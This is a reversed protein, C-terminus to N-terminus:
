KSAYRALNEILDRAKLRGSILRQIVRFDSIAAWTGPRFLARVAYVGTRLFGPSVAGLERSKISSLAILHNAIPSVEAVKVAHTLVEATSSKWFFDDAELVSQGKERISIFAAVEEIFIPSKNNSLLAEILLLHDELVKQGHPFSLNRILEPTKKYIVACIPTKNPGFFSSLAHSAFYRAGPRQAKSEGAEHVHQAGLFILGEPRNLGFVKDLHLAIEPNLWDDDDLLWFHDADSALIAMHMLATRSDNSAHNGVDFLSVHANKPLEFNAKFDPNSSVIMHHIELAAVRKAFAAVSSVNRELFKDRSGTTRTIICLKARSGGKYIFEEVKKPPKIEPLKLGDYFSALERSAQIELDLDSRRSNLNYLFTRFDPNQGALRLWLKKSLAIPGWLALEVNTSHDLANLGTRKTFVFSIRNDADYGFAYPLRGNAVLVRTGDAFESKATIESLRSIAQPSLYFDPPIVVIFENGDHLEVVKLGTAM